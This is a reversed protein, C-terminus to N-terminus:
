EASGDERSHSRQSSSAVDSVLTPLLSSSAAVSSELEDSPASHVSLSSPHVHEISQHAHNAAALEERLYSMEENSSREFLLFENQVPLVAQAGELM